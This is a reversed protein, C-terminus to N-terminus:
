HKTGTGKFKHRALMRKTKLRYNCIDCTTVKAAEEEGHMQEIHRLLVLGSACAEGCLDCRAPYRDPKLYRPRKRRQVPVGEGEVKPKRGRRGGTATGRRSTGTRARGRRGGRRVTLQTECEVMPPISDADEENKFDKKIDGLSVGGGGYANPTRNGFVDNKDDRDGGTDVGAATESASGTLSSTFKALQSTSTEEKVKKEEEEEKKVRDVELAAYRCRQQYGALLFEVLDRV